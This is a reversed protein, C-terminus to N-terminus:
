RGKLPAARASPKNTDFKVHTPHHLSLTWRTAISKSRLSARLAHLHKVFASTTFDAEPAPILNNSPLFLCRRSTGDEGLSLMSPVAQIAGALPLQFSGTTDRQPACWPLHNRRRRASGPHVKGAWPSRMQGGEETPMPVHNRPDKEEPHSVVRQLGALICSLFSDGYTRERKLLKLKFQSILHSFM